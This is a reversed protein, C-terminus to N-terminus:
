FMSVYSVDMNDANTNSIYVPLPYKAFNEFSIGTMMYVQVSNVYFRVTRQYREITWRTQTATWSADWTIPQSVKLTGNEDYFKIAFVDDTTNFVLRGKNGLNGSKLGWERADGSTPVVPISSVIELTGYTMAIDSQVTDANLRLNGSSIAPTGSVTYFVNGSTYGEVSPDYKFIQQGQIISVDM